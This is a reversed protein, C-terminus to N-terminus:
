DQNIDNIAFNINVVLFINIQCDLNNINLIEM